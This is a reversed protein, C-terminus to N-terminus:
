EHKRNARHGARSHQSSHVEVPPFSRFRKGTKGNKRRGYGGTCYRVTHQMNSGVTLATRM